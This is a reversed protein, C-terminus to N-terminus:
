YRIQRKYVDEATIHLKESCLQEMGLVTQQQGIAKREKKRQLLIWKDCSPDLYKRLTQSTNERSEDVIVADRKM